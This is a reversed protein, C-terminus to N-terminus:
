GGIYSLSCEEHTCTCGDDECPYETPAWYDGCKCAHDRHWCDSGEECDLFNHCSYAVGFCYNNYVFDGTVKNEKLYGLCDCSSVEKLPVNGAVGAHKPFFFVVLLSFATILLITRRNM